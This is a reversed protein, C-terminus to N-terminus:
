LISQSNLFPSRFPSLIGGFTSPTTMLAAFWALHVKGTYGSTAGPCIDVITADDGKTLSQVSSHAKITLRHEPHSEHTLVRTSSDSSFDGFGLGVPIQSIISASTSIALFPIIYSFQLM